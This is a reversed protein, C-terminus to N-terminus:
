DGDVRMWKESTRNRPPAWRAMVQTFWGWCRVPADHSRAVLLPLRETPDIEQEEERDDGDGNAQHHRGHLVSASFLGPDLRDVVQLLQARRRVVERARVLR